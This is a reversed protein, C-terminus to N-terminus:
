CCGRQKSSSMSSWKWIKEENESKREAEQSRYLTRAATRVQKSYQDNAGETSHVQQQKTDSVTCGIINYYKIYQVKM